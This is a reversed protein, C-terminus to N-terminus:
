GAAPERTGSARAARRGVCAGRGEAFFNAVASIVPSIISNAGAGTAHRVRDARVPAPTTPRSPRGDASSRPPPPRALVRARRFPRDGERPRPRPRASLEPAPAWRALRGPKRGPPVRDPAGCHDSHRHPPHPPRRPPRRPPSRGRARGAGAGLSELCASQASACVTPRKCGRSKCKSFPAEVKQAPEARPRSRRAVGRQEAAGHHELRGVQADVVRVVHAVAVEGRRAHLRLLVGDIQKSARLRLHTSGQARSSGRREPLQGRQCFYSALRVEPYGACAALRVPPFTSLM